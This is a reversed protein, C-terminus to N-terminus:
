PPNDLGGRGSRGGLTTNYGTGDPLDFAFLGDKGISYLRDDAVAPGGGSGTHFAMIFGPDAPGRTTDIVFLDSYAEFFGGIPPVGVALRGSAYAPQYTWGGLVLQGGSDAFTDWRLTASTGLDAFMQVKEVSGFGDIGGSLIVYSDPTPIPISDTRECATQWLVQGDTLSLKFLRSNNEGGYFNYSAAYVAGNAISVGGFFEEPALDTVWVPLGGTLADYALVEGDMTAVVVRGDSYAPTNGSTGGIPASWAIQGPQFPNRTADFPDVNVAYLTGNGFPASDTIFARNAPVGDRELDTTVLPSANVVEDFLLRQWRIAGSGADLAYLTMGSAILVADNRVDVAPSSWSDFSDPEIPTAWQRTGNGAAYAIVRNGVQVSGSYRRANVFVRGNHAVPTSRAAFAEDTAAVAVWAVDLTPPVTSAISTRAADGAYHTWSDAQARADRGPIGFGLTLLLLPILLM